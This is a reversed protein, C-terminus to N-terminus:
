TGAMSGIFVRSAAGRHGEWWIAEEEEKSSSSAGAEEERKM